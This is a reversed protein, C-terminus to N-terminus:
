EVRNRGREKARYLAEDASHYLADFDRLEHATTCAVGFSATTRIETDQWRTPAAELRARLKEAIRRAADHSTNPLLIIFEEGGLRGVLDTSRVTSTALQATQRLVADGAPHGWTDNVHKFHDLDLLLIATASSQRQARRLEQRTLEVFTNRNYLGTLGDQRTLRELERQKQELAAQTKQLTDRLVTHACFKRWLLVSLAWTLVCGALGQFRATSLLAPAAQALNLAAYLGLSALGYLLASVRPRLHVSISCLMCLLLFSLLSASPVQDVATLGLGFLLLLIAWVQPLVTGWAHRSAYRLHHAAVSYLLLAAGMASHVALLGLSWRQPPLAPNSALWQMGWYLAAVGCYLALAPALVRLRRLNAAAAPEAMSASELRWQSLKRQLTHLHNQM